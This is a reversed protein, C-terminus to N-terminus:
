GVKISMRSASDNENAKERVSEHACHLWTAMAIMVQDWNRGSLLEPARCVVANLFKLIRSTDHVM